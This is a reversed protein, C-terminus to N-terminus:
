HSCQFTMDLKSTLGFYRNSNFPFFFLLSLHASLIIWLTWIYGPKLGLSYWLSFFCIYFLVMFCNSAWIPSHWRIKSNHLGKQLLLVWSQHWLLIAWPVKSFTSAKYSVVSILNPYRHTFFLPFSLCWYNELSELHNGLTILTSSWQESNEANDSCYLFYYGVVQSGLLLFIKIFLVFVPSISVVCIFSLTNIDKCCLSNASSLM